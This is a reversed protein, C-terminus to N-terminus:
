KNLFNNQFTEKELVLSKSGVLRAYATIMEELENELNVKIKKGRFIPKIGHVIYEQFYPGNHSLSQLSM